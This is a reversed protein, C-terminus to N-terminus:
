PLCPLPSSLPFPFDLCTSLPWPHKLQSLGGSKAREPNGPGGPAVCRWLRGNETGHTLAPHSLPASPAQKCQAMAVRWRVRGQQPVPSGSPIVAAGDWQRMGITHSLLWGQGSGSTVEAREALPM